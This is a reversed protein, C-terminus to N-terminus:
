RLLYPAVIQNKNKSGRGARGGNREVGLEANDIKVKGQIVSSDERERMAQMILGALALGAKM